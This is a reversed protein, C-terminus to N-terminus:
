LDTNRDKDNDVYQRFIKSGFEKVFYVCITNTACLPTNRMTMIITNALKLVNAM